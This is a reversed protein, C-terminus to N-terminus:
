SVELAHSRRLAQRLDVLTDCVTLGPIALTSRMALVAAGGTFLSIRDALLRRVSALEAALRSPDVSYVASLGVARADVAAAASAIEAAPVDVGLYVVTWGDLAAAAAVLAAGVAHFEGAPTAVLIRPANAEEPVTRVTEHVIALVAASALHEHAISMRNGMWADGIRRMLEPVTDELFVPVGHQGLARRLIRDLGSANFTMIQAMCLGVVRDREHRMRMDAHDTGEAKGHAPQAENLSSVAQEDEAVLRQLESNPLEAVLSINRGHRTAAALLRFRDVQDDTYLRQGGPTRLPEVVGYRREWVRLVDRSLGTREAVVAIPHGASLPSEVNAYHKTM